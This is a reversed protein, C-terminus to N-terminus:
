AMASITSFWLVNKVSRILDNTAVPKQLYDNAGCEFAMNIEHTGVVSADPESNTSEEAGLIIIPIDFTEPGQKLQRGVEYGDIGPILADLIIVDPKEEKAKDYGDAGSLAKIVEFGQNQLIRETASVLARNDDIVLIRKQNGM